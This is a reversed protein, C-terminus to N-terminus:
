QTFDGFKEFQNGLTAFLTPIGRHIMGLNNAYPYISQYLKNTQFILDEITEGKKPSAAFVIKCVQTACFPLLYIM